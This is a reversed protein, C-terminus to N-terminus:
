LPKTERIWGSLNGKKKREHWMSLMGWFKRESKWTMTLLPDRERNQRRKGGELEDEVESGWSCRGWSPKSPLAWLSRRQLSVTRQSKNSSCSSERPLGPRAKRGGCSLISDPSARRSSAQRCTRACPFGRECTLDGGSPGPPVQPLTPIGVSTQPSAKCLSSRLKNGKKKQVIKWLNKKLQHHKLPFCRFRHIYIVSKCVTRRPEPGCHVIDSLLKFQTRRKTNRHNCKQTSTNLTKSNEGCSRKCEPRNINGCCM